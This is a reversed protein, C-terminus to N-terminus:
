LWEPVFGHRIAARLLRALRYDSDIRRCAELYAAAVSGRGRAWELWGLMTLAPAALSDPGCSVLHRLLDVAGRIADADPAKTGMGLFTDYVAGSGITAEGPETAEHLAVMGADVGWALTMLVCDRVVRHRLSWLLAVAVGDSPLASPRAGGPAGAGRCVAALVANWHLLLEAVDHPEREGGSLGPVRTLMSLAAMARERRRAPVRTVPVYEGRHPDSGASRRRPSSPSEASKAGPLASWSLEVPLGGALVFPDSHPRGARPSPAGPSRGALAPLDLSPQAWHDAVVLLLRLVEFGAAGLRQLAAHLLPASRSLITARTDDARGYVVLEASTAGTVRALLGTLARAFEQPDPPADTPLDVRLAAPPRRRRRVYLALSAQPRFGLLSEIELLTATPAAGPSVASTPFLPVSTSTM